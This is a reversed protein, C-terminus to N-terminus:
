HAFKDRDIGYFFVVNTQPAYLVSRDSTSPYIVYLNTTTASMIGELPGPIPGGILSKHLDHQWRTEYDQRVMGAKKDAPTLASVSSICQSIPIRRAEVGALVSAAQYKTRAKASLNWGLKGM